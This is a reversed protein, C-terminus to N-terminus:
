GLLSTSALQVVTAVVNPMGSITNLPLGPVRGAASDSAAKEGPSRDAPTREAAFELQNISAQPELSRIFRFMSVYLNRQTM